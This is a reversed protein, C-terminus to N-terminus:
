NRFDKYENKFELNDINRMFLEGILVGNVGFSNIKRLDDISMIGSEAIVVKDRPISNILKKTTDLSVNFNRLDRNNIGIIKCDFSLALDLEDKNHVEVLAELGFKKAEKYFEGLKKGLVSVILLVADAGLIKAEYIQYFDVIFDKRLIPTTSLARIDKIYNDSGFFFDEETLISFADIGLSNYYNLIEKINFNEVIIGKSPSAKKFEGIVSLGPKLLSKLFNNEQNFLNNAEGKINKNNNELEFNLKEIAQKRIEEIPIQKKREEVRIKKQKVIKDLIM